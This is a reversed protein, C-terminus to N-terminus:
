RIKLEFHDQHWLPLNSSFMGVAKGLFLPNLLVVHYLRGPSDPLCAPSPLFPTDEGGGGGRNNISQAYGQTVKYSNGTERNAAM